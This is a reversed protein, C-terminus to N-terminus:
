GFPTWGICRATGRAEAEGAHSHSFPASLDYRETEFNGGWNLCLGPRVAPKGRRKFRPIETARADATLRADAVVRACTTSFSYDLLFGGTPSESASTPEPTLRPCPFTGGKEIPLGWLGVPCLDGGTQQAPRATQLEDRLIASEDLAGLRGKWNITCM